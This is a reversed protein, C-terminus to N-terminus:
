TKEWQISITNTKANLAAVTEAGRETQPARLLYASARLFAELDAIMDAQAVTYLRAPKTVLPAPIYKVKHLYKLRSRDIDVRACLQDITLAPVNVGNLVIYPNDLFAQREARRQERYERSRAKAAERYDADEHYRRRRDEAIRGGNQQWWEPTYGM